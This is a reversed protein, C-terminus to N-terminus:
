HQNVLYKIHQCPDVVISNYTSYVCYGLMAKSPKKVNSKATYDVVIKSGNRAQSYYATIQCAIVIIHDPIPKGQSQIITHSSHINQTHVWIDDKSALQFTVYNNQINNKGVIITYGDVIYKYPQSAVTTKKRNSNKSPKIIGTQTLEINIEELDSYETCNALGQQISLLYDLLQKNQELLVSNHAITSKQKQYKKYYKAANQQPSINELPITINPCDEQYYNVVTAQFDGQKILHINALILDGYLKNTTNTSAELIGQQQIAIKKETRSIANKIIQRTSKAKDHFRNHKDLYYYYYDHAENLTAYFKKEGKITQYDTPNVDVPTGGVFVVNPAKGISQLYDTIRQCVAIGNATSHNYIDIGHLIEAVTSNSVGLLNSQLLSMIDTTSDTILAIIRDKDTPLIKDQPAFFSYKAGAMIIRNSGIDIPLHKISDLIVYQDDTLITNATKGTLEFILHMTKNYGLENKNNLKIDIVREFPMQDISLVTANTIHKRLLMCFTPAVFPNSNDFQTLHVRTVSANASLLLKYNIRNAYINLIIQDREPQFIKTIKGGVLTQALETTIVGLSLADFAM